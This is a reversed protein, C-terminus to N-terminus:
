KEKKGETEKEVNEKQYPNQNTLVHQLNIHYGSRRRFIKTAAKTQVGGGGFFISYFNSCILPLPSIRLDQLEPATETENQHRAM